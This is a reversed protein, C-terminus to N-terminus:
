HKEYEEIIDKLLTKMEKKISDTKSQNIWEKLTTIIHNKRILFHNNICDAFEPYKDSNKMISLIANRMVILRIRENYNNSSKEGDATGIGNPNSNFYPKPVLLQAQISIIMQYLTSLKPIWKEAEDPTSGSYTSLISLCINGEGGMNPNFTENNATIFRLTPAENPYNHSLWCDFLYVGNAYPTETPGTIMFRILNIKKMDVCMFVSASPDISLSNALSPIEATLRKYCNMMNLNDDIQKRYHHSSGYLDGSIWRYKEMSKVYIETHLKKMKEPENSQSDNSQSDNSQSDNSQSDNSKNDISVIKDVPTLKKNSKAVVPIIQNVKQYEPKSILEFINIIMNIEENTVNLRLSQKAMNYIKEINQYLSNPSDNSGHSKHFDDIFAKISIQRILNFISKYVNPNNTIDLITIDNLKNRLFCFLSSKKIMHICEDLSGMKITIKNLNDVIQDVIKMACEDREKLMEMYKNINWKSANHYGGYGTGNNNNHMNSEIYKKESPSLIKVFKEDSDIEDNYDQDTIPLLEHLSIELNYYIPQYVLNSTVNNMVNSIDISGYNQIIRIVRKLIKLPSRSPNWYDLKTYKSETIRKALFNNFVPSIVKVTPPYVPHYYGNIRLTIEVHQYGFKDYIQKLENKLKGNFQNIRIKWWYINEDILEITGIKSDTLFEYIQMYDKIVIGLCDRENFLRKIKVEDSKYLHNNKITNKNSIARLKEIEKHYKMKKLLDMHQEDQDVMHQDHQEYQDSQEYPEDRNDLTPESLPGLKQDIVLKLLNGMQELGIKQIVSRLNILDLPLKNSGVVIYSGKENRITLDYGRYSFMNDSEFEKFACPKNTLKMNNM